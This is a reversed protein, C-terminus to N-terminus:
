PFQLAIKLLDAAQEPSQGSYHRGKLRVNPGIACRGFCMQRDLTLSGDALTEGARLGCAAELASLLQASGADRCALGQCVELVARGRPELCLGPSFAALEYVKAFSVGFRQAGIEMAERSVWNMETQVARLFAALASADGAQFRLALQELSM